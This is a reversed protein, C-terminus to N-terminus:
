KEFVNTRGPPVIVKKKLQVVIEEKPVNEKPSVTEKPSVEVDVKEM